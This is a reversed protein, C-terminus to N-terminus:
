THMYTAMMIAYRCADKLNQWDDKGAEKFSKATTIRSIAKREGNVVPRDLTPDFGYQQCYYNFRREALAKWKAGEPPADQPASFAVPVAHNVLDESFCYIEFWNKEIESKWDEFFRDVYDSVVGWFLAEAKACTHAESIPKMPTWGKWDQMGMIDRTRQELGEKTLATAAAIYGGILTKDAAHDILSVEKLHPMLLAAVPNLKLNRYCAVAFQESNLHTGAFHEEVETNFAGNVRAVRKAYTWNPEDKPTYVRKKWPDHEHSSLQGTLHIEIPEPLGNKKLKFLIDM